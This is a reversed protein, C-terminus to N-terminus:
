ASARVPTTSVAPSTGASKTGLEVATWLLAVMYAVLGLNGLVGPLNAFGLAFSAVALVIFGIGLARSYVGARLVAVGFLIGGLSVVISAIPYFAGVSNFVANVTGKSAHVLGPLVLVNMIGGAVTLAMGAAFVTLMAVLGLIGSKERQFLYTAPWAAMILVGGVISAITTAYFMAGVVNAPNDGQPSLLGAVAVVIAGAALGFASLRFLSRVSM